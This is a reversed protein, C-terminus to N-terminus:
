SATPRDYRRALREPSVGLGYLALTTLNAASQRLWGRREWRRASTTLRLSLHALRGQRKLRGMFEVDELLPWPRYGGLSTFVARRVFIGQDGYPLDFLRVRAAVGRELWRAQWAPSELHFRFSGGVVETQGDLAQFAERWATPVTCDAHLFWLWRSAASAAGRNLQAGRGAPGDIWRVDARAARLRLQAADPVDATSVIIEVDPHAPLSALLRALPASDGRVPIVVSVLPSSPTM